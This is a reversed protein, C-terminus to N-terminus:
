QLYHGRFSITDNTAIDTTGGAAALQAVGTALLELGVMRGVSLPGNMNVTSSPRLATPLTVVNLNAVDGSTGVPIAAGTRKVTVRVDIIALGPTTNLTVKRWQVSTLSWGSSIVFGTNSTSWDSDTPIQQYRADGETQSLFAADAEAKTYRDADATSRTSAEAAVATNVTSTVDADTPLADVQTQLDDLHTEATDLRADFGPVASDPINLFTNQGGDITKHTLTQVKDKGVIRDPDDIGHGYPNSSHDNAEDDDIATHCHEIVETAGHNQPISDDYGRRAITLNAGSRDHCLVKEENPGGRNIVAAFEGDSGDPWGNLADCAIDLDTTTIPATLAGAQAAGRYARRTTTM